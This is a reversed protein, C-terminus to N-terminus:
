GTEDGQLSKRKTTQDFSATLYKWLLFTQDLVTKRIFCCKLYLM